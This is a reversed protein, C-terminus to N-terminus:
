RRDQFRIKRRYPFADVIEGRRQLEQMERWFEVSFLDSHLEVFKDAM